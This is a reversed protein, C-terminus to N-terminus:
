FTQLTFHILFLGGVNEEQVSKYEEWEEKRKRERWAERVDGTTVSSCTWSHPGWIPHLPILLRERKEERYHFGSGGAWENQAKEVTHTHTHTSTVLKEEKNQQPVPGMHLLIEIPIRVQTHSVAWHAHKQQASFLLVTRTHPQSCLFFSRRVPFADQCRGPRRKAGRLNIPCMM